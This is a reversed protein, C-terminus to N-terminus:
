LRQEVLSWLEVDAVGNEIKEIVVEAGVGIVDDGINRAPVNLHEGRFIYSIEGPTGIVIPRTVTAITGQLEEMEEHPDIVPGNFAWKAMVITMGIWTSVAAFTAVILASMASIHSYATLGYGVIGFVALVGGVVPANLAASPTKITSSNQSLRVSGNLMAYVSTLAGIGFLGAYIIRGSDLIEM